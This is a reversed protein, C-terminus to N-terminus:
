VEVMARRIAAEIEPHDVGARQPARLSSRPRAEHGGRREERPFTRTYSLCAYELAM